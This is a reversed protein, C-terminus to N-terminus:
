TAVAFNDVLPKIFTMGIMTVAGLLFKVIELHGESSSDHLPTNGYQDQINLDAEGERLLERVRDLDRDRCARILEVPDYNKTTTTTTPTDDM